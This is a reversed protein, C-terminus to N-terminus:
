NTVAASGTCMFGTGMGSTQQVCSASNVILCAINSCVVGTTCKYDQMQKYKKQALTTAESQSNVLVPCGCSGNSPLTSSPSCENTSGKDCVRAKELLTGYESQLTKCDTAGGTGGTGGTGGRGTGGGPGSGAASGGAGGANTSGGSGATSETGAGAGTGAGSNTDGGAGTGASAGTNGGSDSGASTSSGGADSPPAGAEGLAGGTSGTANGTFSSGCAVCVCM